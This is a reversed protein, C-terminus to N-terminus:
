PAPTIGLIDKLMIILGKAIIVTILGILTWKIITKATDIKKPDEAATVFYFGAIIFMIPAITISITYIFDIISNILQDFTKAGLPNGIEIVGRVTLPVLFSSLLLFIILFLYPKM